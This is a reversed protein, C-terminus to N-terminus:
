SLRISSPVVFVSTVDFKVSQGWITQSQNALPAADSAKFLSEEALNWDTCGSTGPETRAKAALSNYAANDIHSFNLEGTGSVWGSEMSPNYAGTPLDAIDWTGGSSLLVGELATTSMGTLSVKVGLKSWEQAALEFASSPDGLDTDYVMSLTLQKGDKTRVGNPGTTWGAQQLLGAAKATDFAPLNGQVTNGACPWPQVQLLGTAASGQGQDLVTGVQPLDIGTLLAQRVSQDATAHGASHNFWLQGASVAPKQAFLGAAALPKDAVGVVTAINAGNELLLNAETTSNTVVKLVVKGPMGAVATSAGNPGWEYGHRVTLTYQQGPVANTLAFPGTGDTSENLTSPDALGKACVIDISGLDNLFFPFTEPSTITVTSASDDAVAKAGVPVEVGLAASSNKPNAIYNINAAVTSATLTSGDSCTAGKRITLTYTNGSQTWKTALGTELKGSSSVNILPDYAYKDVQLAVATTTKFPNLSGPDEVLLQTVTGGTDLSGHSTAGSSAGSSCASVALAIASAGILASTAIRRM